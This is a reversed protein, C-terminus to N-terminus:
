YPGFLSPIFYKIVNMLISLSFIMFVLILTRKTKLQFAILFSFLSCLITVIFVGIAYYYLHDSFTVANLFPQRILQFVVEARFCIITGLYTLELITTNANIKLYDKEANIFVTLIIISLFFSSVKIPIGPIYEPLNFPSYWIIWWEIAFGLLLLLSYKLSIRRFHPNTL